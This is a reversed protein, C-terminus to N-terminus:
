SSLSDGVMQVCVFSLLLCIISLVIVSYLGFGGILFGATSPGLSAGVGQAVPILVANRGTSDSGAIWASQLPIVFSYFFNYVCIALAFLWIISPAGLMLLTVFLAGYGVAVLKERPMYAELWSPSIAGAFSFALGASLVFAISSQGFGQSTGLREVFVWIATLATMYLVVALLAISVQKSPLAYLSSEPSAQTPGRDPFYRYFLLPLITGAAAMVFVAGPGEVRLLWSSVLLSVAGIAVQAALAISFERNPKEAVALAAYAFAMMTAAGFGAALRISLLAYYDTTMASFANLGATAIISFWLIPRWRARHIWFRAFLSAVTGAAMDATLLVGVQGDALGYSEAFIGAWVPLLYFSLLGSSFLAYNLYCLGNSDARISYKM